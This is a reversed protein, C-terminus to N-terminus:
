VRFGLEAEICAMNVRLADAQSLLLGANQLLIRNDETCRATM